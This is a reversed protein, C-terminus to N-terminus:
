ERCAREYLARRLDQSIRESHLQFFKTHRLHPSDLLARVGADGIQTQHLELSLLNPFHPSAALAFAGGDGVNRTWTFHLSILGALRPSGALARVGEDGFRDNALRLTDLREMYPMSALLARVDQDRLGNSWLELRRLNRLHPSPLLAVVGGQRMHRVQLIQIDALGPSAALAAVDEGEAPAACDLDLDTLSGLLPSGALQRVAPSSLKTLKLAEVWAWAETGAWSPSRLWGLRTTEVELHLLGRRFAWKVGNQDLPGLWEAGHRNELSKMEEWLPDHRLDERRSWECAARVYQGRARDAEAPQEELWDALVLLPTDDRPREKAEKLLALLEPRQPNM